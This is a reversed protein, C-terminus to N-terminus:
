PQFLRFAVFRIATLGIQIRVGSFIVVIVNDYVKKLDQPMFDKRILSMSDDIWNHKSPRYKWFHQHSDIVM